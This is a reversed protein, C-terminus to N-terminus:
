GWLTTDPPYVMAGEYRLGPTRDRALLLAGDLDVHDALSLLTTAPAIALSTCVMCGLMVGLGVDRAGRALALAGTLGGAKDLKVNVADYRGRVWELDSVTHCSEDACLPVPVDVERLPADQEAPVPQEVMAVGLRALEPGLSVLLDISWAENADVILTADLREARVAELREIVADAGVKVKLLPCGRRAAAARAMADPSDLSLTVATVTPRPPALGALEWVRRGATKAELDWLACDVASRAAGPGLLDALAERDVDGPLGRIAAEVGELSEGYRAYPVSEGRGVVGGRRVAVVVVEAATKDGRSIRFPGAIPWRERHAEIAM